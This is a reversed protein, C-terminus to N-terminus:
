SSQKLEVGGARPLLLTNELPHVDELHRACLIVIKWSQLNQDKIFIMSALELRETYSSTLIRFIQQLDGCFKKSMEGRFESTVKHSVFQDIAVPM